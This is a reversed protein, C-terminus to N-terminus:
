NMFDSEKRESITMSSKSTTSQVPLFLHTYLPCTSQPVCYLQIASTCLLLQQQVSSMAPRLLCPTFHHHVAALFKSHIRSVRLVTSHSHPHSRALFCEKFKIHHRHVHRISLSLSIKLLSCSSTSNSSFAKLTKKIPM